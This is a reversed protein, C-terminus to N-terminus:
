VSDIMNLSISIFRQTSPNHLSYINKKNKLVSINLRHTSTNYSKHFSVMINVPQSAWGSKFRDDWFYPILNNTGPESPMDSIQSLNSLTLIKYNYVNGKIYSSGRNDITYNDSRHRGIYDVHTLTITLQSTYKVSM